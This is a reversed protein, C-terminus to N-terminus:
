FEFRLLLDDDYHNKVFKNILGFAVLKEENFEANLLIYESVSLMEIATLEAFESQFDRIILKIDSATAGICNIGNPFYRRSSEAKAPSSINILDNKIRNLYVEHKKM